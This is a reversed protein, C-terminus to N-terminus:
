VLEQLRAYTSGIHRRYTSHLPLQWAHDGSAQAAATVTDIWPQDNGMLGAYFDGLATVVAGTLTALDLMHTAGQERCFTLADALVLRGEADTNTVEITKGNKATLIDGPRYANGDLMNESAAIVAVIAVPLKLSAIAGVAALVAAAGAMDGKMDAMRTAPKISIGGTDFTIGKGVLGLLPEEAAGPGKWRLVIMRPENVSAQGVAAFAGMGADRIQDPDWIECELGEHEKAIRTADEALAIPTVENAPADVLRRAHNVWDCIQAAREAAELAGSLEDGVLILEAIPEPRADVTKWAGPDYSALATGEALARAQEEVSLALQPDLQWAIRTGNGPRTAAVVRAAATRVADADLDASKGLGAM